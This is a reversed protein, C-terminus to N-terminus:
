KWKALEIPDGNPRMTWLHQSISPENIFDWAVFPVDHFRAVVSSILTRQRRMAEPDLYPNVGGLVDPLFAFFNFQVPVGNKRATMLYAELTRLTRDYPEGNENCFKDWGTWWGTRIMNLGAAHIQGMEHNWVYVNPYEFYLRQAEGSMYTTGVVAFPKGEREFYDKNVTLRAGSRLYSEDRIWFGSHYRARVKEGEVLQADVLYLGKGAPAPVVIPETPQADTTIESRQSPQDDRYIAVKVKLAPSPSHAAHWTVALQIPEGPLYLPLVPRVIFEESGQLAREALTGLLQAAEPGDWFKAPLEADVFIWRGGNFGNRLHDIEIVPAALKRGDKLGWAIPDARADIAGAAGGRHYLDVASLRIVPSYARNWAFSPIQLPLDTNLQFELGQSGPTPQYQDIMLARAFRVSYDRLHWGRDDHFASRTFPRGGIVLLNGGRELFQQIRPWAAEPFASGFPLVFLHSAPSSLAEGIEQGHALKAGPFSASIQSPSPASSDASPFGAESLVVVSETQANSLLFPNLVIFLLIASLWDKNM